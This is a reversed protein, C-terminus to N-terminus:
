SEGRVTYKVISGANVLRDRNKVLGWGAVGIFQFPFKPRAFPVNAEFTKITAVERSLEGIISRIGTETGGTIVWGNTM